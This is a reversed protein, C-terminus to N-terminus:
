LELYEFNIKSKKNQCWYMLNELWVYKRLVNDVNAYKIKNEYIHNLIEEDAETSKNAQSKILGISLDKVPKLLKDILDQSNTDFTSFINEMQNIAYENIGFPNISVVGDWDKIFSKFFLRNFKIDKYEPIKQLIENDVVVRPYIAKDNELIYAKVMGKSFMINDDSYYSGISLGGRTFIGTTMFYYQLGKIFAVLLNLNTLFDDKNDFYPISIVINDSFTKYELYDLVDKNIFQNNFFNDLAIKFAKQINQLFNCSNDDEYEYIMEKFGLIDLFCVIRPDTDILERKFYDKPNKTLRIEMKDSLKHETLFIEFYSCFNIISLELDSCNFEKNNKFCDTIIQINSIVKNIRSNYNENKIKIIGTYSKIELMRLILNSLIIKLERWFETLRTENDQDDKNYKFLIKKLKRSFVQFVDNPNPISDNDENNKNFDLKLMRNTLDTPCWNVLGYKVFDSLLYWPAENRIYSDLESPIIRKTYINIIQGIVVKSFLNNRPLVYSQFFIYNVPNDYDNNFLIKSAGTYEKEKTISVKTEWLKAQKEIDETYNNTIIIRKISNDFFDNDEAFKILESYSTKIYDILIEFRGENFKINNENEYKRKDISIEILESM